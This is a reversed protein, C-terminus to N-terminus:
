AGLPSPPTFTQGSKHLAFAIRLLKRALVVHIATPPLAKSRCHAVYDRWVKARAASMAAAVLLRRWEPNGRKSLRRRGRHQGSEDPRPDLGLYAVLSDAHRFSFREFLATLLGAVLPGVGCITRLRRHLDRRTPEGATLQALQEDISTILGAISAFLQRKQEGLGSIDALSQQLAQRSSVLLARRELLQLVQECWSPATQYPHLHSREHALYRALLHADLPDTKGRAGVSQAYFHFDHPNLVYVIFGGIYALDALRRHYNGTAEMGIVSGAPLSALWAKIDAVRNAIPVVGRAQYEAIVLGEKSVDAAFIRSEESM